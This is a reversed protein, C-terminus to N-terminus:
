PKKTEAPREFLRGACGGSRAPLVLWAGSGYLRAVFGPRQGRAIAGIRPIDVIRAVDGALALMSDKRSPGIVVVDRTPEYWLTAATVGAVWVALALGAGRLWSAAQAGASGETTTSM